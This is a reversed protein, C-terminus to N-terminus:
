KPTVGANLIENLRSSVEPQLMRIEYPSVRLGKCAMSLLKNDPQHELYTYGYDLAAQRAVTAIRHVRSGFPGEYVG